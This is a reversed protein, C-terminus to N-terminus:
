PQRYGGWPLPRVKMGPQGLTEETLHGRGLWKCHGDVYACNAGDNHRNDVAEPGGFLTLGEFLVVLEAARPVSGTVLANSYSSMTYSTKFRGSSQLDRRGDSPCIYIQENKIYPYLAAPWNTAYPLRDGNESAYMIMGLMIQKVNSLCPNSSAKATARAFIPFLVGVSLIMGVLLVVFCGVRGGRDAAGAGYWAAGLLLALPLGAAFIFRAWKAGSELLVLRGGLYFQGGLAMPLGSLVVLGLAVAAAIRWWNPRWMLWATLLATVVGVVVARALPHEFGRRWVLLGEASHLLGILTVALAVCVWFLM